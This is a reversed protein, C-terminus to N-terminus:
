GGPAVSQYRDVILAPMGKVAPRRAIPQRLRRPARSELLTSFAQVLHAYRRTDLMGLLRSRARTRQGELVAKLPDLVGPEGLSGEAQWAAVRELQVDLDRVEGLGAAVWRLEDRLGTPRRPLGNAFLSLAARLRRTAVRMRHVGEPDDGLRAGPEHALLAAFHRRLVALAMEGFSLTDTIDTPGFEPAPVPTLALVELGVAYTSREARQLVGQRCGEDILAAMAVAAPGSGTVRVQQLRAPEQGPGRLICTEDMGVEVALGSAHAVSVSKRRTQMAFLPRIATVGALARARQGVPGSAGRLTELKDDALQESVECRPEPSSPGGAAEDLRRLQAVVGGASALQRMRLVYSARYFRWDETELYLDTQDQISTSALSFALEAARTQLWAEFAPLDATELRRDLTANELGEPPPSPKPEDRDKAM